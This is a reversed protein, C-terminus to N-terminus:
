KSCGVRLGGWGTRHHGAAAWGLLGWQLRWVQSEFTYELPERATRLDWGRLCADLGGTWITQDKIMISKAGDLHGSIDRTPPSLPLDASAGLSLRVVM